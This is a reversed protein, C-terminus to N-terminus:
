GIQVKQNQFLDLPRIISCILTDPCGPEMALATELNIRGSLFLLNPKYLGQMYQCCQSYRVALRRTAQPVQISYAELTWIRASAFLDFTSTTATGRDIRGGDEDDQLDEM